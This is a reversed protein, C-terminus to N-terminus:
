DLLVLRSNVWGEDADNQSNKGCGLNANASCGYEYVKIKYWTSVAGNVEYSTEELVRVKAGRYHIGVSAADKNPDTRLNADTTLHGLRQNGSSSSTSTNSSSNNTNTATTTTTTTNTNTMTTNANANSATSAQEKVERWIFKGEKDIWAMQEGPSDRSVVLAMGGYFPLALNFQPNIIFKGSKDVYGTKGESAQAPALGESFSMRGIDSTIMFVDQWDSRGIRQAEFQPNIEYKGSKDIFGIKNNLVVLALGEDSFPLAVDFQPNIVIKGTKDVYGVQNGVRVAALGNTFPQAEDFQPNIVLKGDKDIFGYKKSIAVAALGDFFPSAYEFQPNIIIKGTKDIYGFNDGVRVRALGESFTCLEFDVGSSFQPNIAYKGNKDVYGVKDGVLVAALGDSFRLAAQFQPNIIFKGTQDIYGCKGGELCAAALGESFFWAREFQPQIVVEGKSNIYGWKGNQRILFLEPTEKSFPNKSCSLTILTALLITLVVYFRALRM